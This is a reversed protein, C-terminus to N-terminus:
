PPSGPTMKCGPEAPPDPAGFHAQILQAPKSGNLTLIYMNSFEVDCVFPIKPGGLDAVIDPLMSQHNVVLIVDGPAQSVAQATARAQQEPSENGRPVTIPKLHLLAALPAATELTRRQDTSVIATVKAARLAQALAQARERGGANLPPNEHPITDKEAHRVVIITRTQGAASSVPALM